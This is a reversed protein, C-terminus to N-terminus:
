GQLLGHLGMSNHSTSAGVNEGVICEYIAIINDAKLMCIKLLSEINLDSTYKIRFGKMSFNQSSVCPVSEPRLIRQSRSRSRETIGQRLGRDLIRDLNQPIASKQSVDGDKFRNVGQSISLKHEKFHLRTLSAVCYCKSYWQSAIKSVGQTHPLCFTTSNKM